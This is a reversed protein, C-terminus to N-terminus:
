GTAVALPGRQLAPAPAGSLRERWLVMVLAPFNFVSYALAVNRAQGSSFGLNTVMIFMMIVWGARCGFFFTRDEESLHAVLAARSMWLVSAFFIMHIAFGLIGVDVLLDFVLSHASEWITGRLLWINPGIGFIPNEQLFELAHTWVVWRAENQVGYHFLDQTRDAIMRLDSTTQTVSYRVFYFLALGGLGALLLVGPRHLQRLMRPMWWLVLLGLGLLPGRSAGVWLVVGAIAVIMMWGVGRLVAGSKARAIGLWLVGGLLYLAPIGHSQGMGTMRQNTTEHFQTDGLIGRKYDFALVALTGVLQGVWIAKYDEIGRVRRAVCLALGIPLAFRSLYTVFALERDEALLASILATALIASVSLKIVAPVQRHPRQPAGSPGLLGFILLLPVLLMDFTVAEDAEGVLYEGIAQQIPLLGFLLAVAVPYRAWGLVLIAVAAVPTYSLCVRFSLGSNMFAMGTMPATLLAFGITAAVLVASLMWDFQWRQQRAPELVTYPEYVLMGM